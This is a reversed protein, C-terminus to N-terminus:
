MTNKELTASGNVTHIKLRRGGSGITGHVSKPGWQGSSSQITLPLDTNLRGNVSQFDVETSADAPLALSISGNVTTIALEDPWNAHGFRGTVSGNVSSLHAWQDTSVDVSGNVSTADAVEGLNKADVSGNVNRADFRVNRPLRVQFDVRAHNRNNHSNVHLNSDTTCESEGPFMACIAIGDANEVVDVRVEDAGSGSKDATVEVQNGDAAEAHIDGNVDKIILTKGAALTGNWHFPNANSSTNQATALSPLLLISVLGATILGKTTRM